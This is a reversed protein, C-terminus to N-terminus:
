VARASMSFCNLRCLRFCLSDHPACHATSDVWRCSSTLPVPESTFSEPRLPTLILWTPAEAQCCCPPYVSDQMAVSSLHHRDGVIEALVHLTGYGLSGVSSILCVTPRNCNSIGSRPHDCRLLLDPLHNAHALPQCPPQGLLPNAPLNHSPSGPYDQTGTSGPPRPRTV